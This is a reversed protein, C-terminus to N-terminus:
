FSSVDENQYETYSRVANIFASLVTVDQATVECKAGVLSLIFMHVAPSYYLSSLVFGEREFWSLIDDVTAKDRYQGLHDIWCGMEDAPLWRMMQEVTKM